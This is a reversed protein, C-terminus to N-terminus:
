KQKPNKNKGQNKLCCVANLMVILRQLGAAFMSIAMLRKNGCYINQSADDFFIVM